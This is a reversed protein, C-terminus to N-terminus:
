ELVIIEGDGYEDCWAISAVARDFKKKPLVVMQGIIQSPLKEKLFGWIMLSVIMCSMVLCQLRNIVEEPVM